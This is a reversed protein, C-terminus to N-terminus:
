WPNWELIQVRAEERAEDRAVKRNLRINWAYTIELEGFCAMSQEIRITKSTNSGREWIGMKEKEWRTLECQRELSLKPTLELREKDGRLQTLHEEEKSLLMRSKGMIYANYDTANLDKM